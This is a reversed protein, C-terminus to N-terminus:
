PRVVVEVPARALRRRLLSERRIPWWRYLHIEIPRWMGVWGSILLGERIYGAWAADAPLLRALTLTATLFALGIVLSTRGESLLLRMERELQDARQSFYNPLSQRIMGPLSPDVCERLTVRIALEGHSPAERAWGVIFQEAKDDLDREHFPSPDMSNFLQAAQNLRVQILRGPRTSMGVAQAVPRPEGDM